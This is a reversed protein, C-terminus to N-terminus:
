RLAWGLRVLAPVLLVPIARLVLDGQGELVARGFDPETRLLAGRPMAWRAAVLPALRGFMEGTAAPDGLGFRLTLHCREIRVRHLLDVGARPLAALVRSRARWSAKAGAGAGPRAGQRHPRATDVLPLRPPLACVGAGVRLRPVPDSDLRLRLRMPLLMVAAVVLGLAALVASM